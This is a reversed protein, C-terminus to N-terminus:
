PRLTRPQDGKKKPTLTSCSLCHHANMPLSVQSRITKPQDEKRKGQNLVVLACMGRLPIQFMTEYLMFVLKPYTTKPQKFKKQTSTSREIRPFICMSM